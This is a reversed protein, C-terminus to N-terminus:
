WSADGLNYQNPINPYKNEDPWDAYGMELEYLDHWPHYDYGVNLDAGRAVAETCGVMDDESAARFLQAQARDRFIQRAQAETSRRVRCVDRGVRLPSYHCRVCPPSKAPGTL